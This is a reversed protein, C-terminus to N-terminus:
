KQLPFTIIFSTNESNPNYNITANQKELLSRSLSLGLGTGKGVDKTTYFPQFIKDILNPPIGIGSDSVKITLINGEKKIQVKVWKEPLESIADISNNILNLLVQTLSIPNCAIISEKESLTLIEEFKIQLGKMRESSLTKVEDMVKYLSVKELTIENTQRSMKQLSSVIKGIRQVTSDIKNLADKVYTLDNTEGKEIFKRIAFSYGNIISLPNNIEHAIGGAMEGLSRMKESQIMQQQTEKLEKLTQAMEIELNKRKTIDTYIGLLGIVEKQDNHLPVKSTLLTSVTGDLQQQPEEINLIPKNNKIVKKDVERFFEAEEKTWCGDYDNKGKMDEVSQFGASQAFLENGGLYNLNIDKWFVYYPINEIVQELVIENENESENKKM